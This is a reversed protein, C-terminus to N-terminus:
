TLNCKNHCNRTTGDFLSRILVINGLYTVSAINMMVGTYLNTRTQFDVLFLHLLYRLTEALCHSKDDPDSLSSADVSKM